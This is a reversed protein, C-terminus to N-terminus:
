GKVNNLGHVFDSYTTHTLNNITAFEPITLSFDNVIRIFAVGPYDRFISTFQAIWQKNNLAHYDQPKYFTTGAYINNVKSHTSGVDFGLMYVTTAGDILALGLANAGSCYPWFPHSLTLAGSDPGPRRTYFKHKHAYGTSQIENAIPRDTAVLVDPTFERYLANCGYIKGYPRLSDLDFGQRSTGNGIIFARTM